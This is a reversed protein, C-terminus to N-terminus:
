RRIVTIELDPIATIRGREVGSEPFIGRDSGDLESSAVLSTHFNGFSLRELATWRLDEIRVWARGLKVQILFHSILEFVCM